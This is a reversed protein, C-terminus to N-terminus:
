RVKCGLIQALYKKCTAARRKTSNSLKKRMLKSIEVFTMTKSKELSKNQFFGIEFCETNSLDRYLKVSITEKALEGEKPLDQLAARTHNGGKVEVKLNSPKELEKISHGDLTFYVGVVVCFSTGVQRMEEKLVEVHAQDLSRVLRSPVPEILNSVHM